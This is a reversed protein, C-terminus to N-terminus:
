HGTVACFMSAGHAPVVSQWWGDTLTQTEGSWLDLVAATAAPLGLDDVHLRIRRPSRGLNFVARVEQKDRKVAADTNRCHDPRLTSRWVVLEQDRIIERCNEGREGVALVADAQLLAITEPVSDPLHGGVMLPSRAISWLTVVTRQEELTLRSDRPGGVHARIGLRGLPLMDLDGVGDDSQVHAWRAARQFQEVIAPWDDWLDDSVRWMEANDRLFAAHELSLERGPSLSLIIGGGAHEIARHIMTIDARRIPPYLVDDVKVFDVGWQTLLAFVSDYWAQSGPHDPLVGEYDPNWPCRESEPAAIDRATYSTGLIPSDAQVARRPIGRMLHVGFRLGMAHLAEALPSFGRGNAASPFRSVVPQPRGYDDIVANSVSNYANIGPDPEYWQIDVVVTDWGHPLLHDRLFRANDLVEQETVSGGFCDWSNWGRPPVTASAPSTM